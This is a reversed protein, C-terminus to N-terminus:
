CRKEGKCINYLLDLMKASTWPENEIHEIIRLAPKCKEGCTLCSRSKKSPRPTINPKSTLKKNKM